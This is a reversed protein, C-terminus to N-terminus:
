HALKDKVVLASVAGVLFSIVATKWELVPPHAITDIDYRCYSLERKCVVIAEKQEQTLNPILNVEASSIGSKM